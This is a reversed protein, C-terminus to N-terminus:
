DGCENKWRGEDLTRFKYGKDEFFKRLVRIFHECDFDRLLAGAAAGHGGGSGKFENGLINALDAALSNSIGELVRKNARITVRVYNERRAIAIAIDAGADQLTKLASSEYAGICTIVLLYDNIAYLGARLAAKLRAVKEAYPIEKKTMVEVILGYMANCTLLWYIVNFTQPRVSIRFFRTDYIIGSLLLSAIHSEPKLNLTMYMLSILESTSSATKDYLAVKSNKILTNVDHHDIIIYNNLLKSYKGLQSESAADLVVQIDCDIEENADKLFNGIDINLSTMINKSVLEIGEPFITHIILKKNKLYEINEIFYKFAITSAVADPDANRHTILCVKRADKLENLIKRVTDKLSSMELM